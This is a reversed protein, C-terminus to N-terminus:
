SELATPQIVFLQGHALSITATTAVLENSVGRSSHAELTEDNLAWKLGDTTVGLADGHQAILGVVEGVKGHITCLGPGRLLQIRATDWLASVDCDKLAQHQMASLIGLQHDLRGGGGTVLVIQQSGYAVAALLALETDTADKDHPLRQVTVGNAAASILVAPDVSDMDGIVLNVRLGLDIASHLGSDAAIVYDYRPLYKAVSKNIPPGGIVVVATTEVM